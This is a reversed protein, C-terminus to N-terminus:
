CGLVNAFEFCFKKKEEAGEESFYLISKLIYSVYTCVYVYVRKREGKM